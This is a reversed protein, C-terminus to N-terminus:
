VGGLQGKLVRSLNLNTVNGIYKVQRSLCLLRSKLYTM